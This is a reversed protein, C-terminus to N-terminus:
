RARTGGSPGEGVSKKDFLGVKLGRRALEFATSSGMIGAGIIVDVTQKM